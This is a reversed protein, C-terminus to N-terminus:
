LGSPLGASIVHPECGRKGFLSLPAEEEERKSWIKEGLIHNALPCKKGISLHETRLGERRRQRGLAIKRSCQKYRTGKSSRPCESEQWNAPLM